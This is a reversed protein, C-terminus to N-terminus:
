WSGSAGGGDSSSGSSSSSSSSSDSSSPSSGSFSDSSFSGASAAFSDSASTEATGWSSNHHHRHNYLSYGSSSFFGPRSSRIARGLVSVIVLGAAAFAFVAFLGGGKNSTTSSTNYTTFSSTTNEQNQAAATAAVGYQEPSLEQMINTCADDLGRYYDGAKFAPVIENDIIAQCEDNTLLDMIGKGTAIRVKRDTKAVFILVGNCKKRDGIGWTSAYHLAAEEVKYLRGTAKDTLSTHTIIVLANGTSNNYSVLKGELVKKQAATLMAAYDNVAAPKSPLSKYFSNKAKGQAIATSCAALLFLLCFIRKMAPIQLHCWSFRKKPVNGAEVPVVVALAEVALAVLVVAVLDAAAV